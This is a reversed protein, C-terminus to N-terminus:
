FFGTNLDQLTPSVGMALHVMFMWLSFRLSDLLYPTKSAFPTHHKLFSLAMMSTLHQQHTLYFSSQANVVPNLWCALRIHFSLQAQWIGQNLFHLLSRLLLCSFGIRVPKQMAKKCQKKKEGLLCYFYSVKGSHQSHALFVIVIGIKLYLFHPEFFDFLRDRTVWSTLQQALIGTWTMCTIM